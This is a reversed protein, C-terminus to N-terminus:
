KWEKYGGCRNSKEFNYYKSVGASKKWTVKIDDYDYM